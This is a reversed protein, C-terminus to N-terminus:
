FLINKGLFSFAIFIWITAILMFLFNFLWILLITKFIDWMAYILIIYCVIAGVSCM